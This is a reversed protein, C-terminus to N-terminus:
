DTLLAVLVGIAAGGIGFSLNGKTTCHSSDEVEEIAESILNCALVGAAAGLLGGIALRTTSARRLAGAHSVPAPTHVGAPPLVTVSINPQPGAIRQAGVALPSLLLGLALPVGLTRLRRHVLHM